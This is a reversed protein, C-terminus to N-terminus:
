FIWSRAYRLESSHKGWPASTYANIDVGLQSLYVGTLASDIGGSLYLGVRRQTITRSVAQRLLKDLEKVLAEGSYGKLTRPKFKYQYIIDIDYTRKDIRMVSGPPVVHVKDFPSIIKASGFAIFCKYGEFTPRLDPEMKLYYLLSPLDIM